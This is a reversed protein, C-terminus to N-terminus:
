IVYPKGSGEVPLRKELIVTEKRFYASSSSHETGIIEPSQAALTFGTSCTALDFENTNVSNAALRISM